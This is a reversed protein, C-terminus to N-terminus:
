LCHRCMSMCHRVGTKAFVPKFSSSSSSASSLPPSPSPSPPSGTPNPTLQAVLDQEGANAQGKDMAIKAAKIAREVTEELTEIKEKYCPVVVRVSFPQRVVPPPFKRVHVM